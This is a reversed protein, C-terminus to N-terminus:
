QGPYELYCCQNICLSSKLVTRFVLCCLLVCYNGTGQASRPSALAKFVPLIETQQSLMVVESAKKTNLSSVFTGRFAIVAM